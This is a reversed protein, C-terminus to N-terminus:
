KDKTASEQATHLFIKTDLNFNQSEFYERIDKTAQIGDKEPMNLDMLIYKLRKLSGEFHM